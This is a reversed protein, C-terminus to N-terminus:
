ITDMGSNSFTFPYLRANTTMGGPVIDVPGVSESNSFLTWSPFSRGVECAETQDGRM